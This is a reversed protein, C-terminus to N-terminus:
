EVISECLLVIEKKGIVKTSYLFVGHQDDSTTRRAHMVMNSAIEILYIGDRLDFKGKFRYVKDKLTELCTLVEQLSVNKSIRINVTSFEITRSQFDIIEKTHCSLQELQKMDVVGFSTTLIRALGNLSVITEKIEEVIKESVLDSKNIIVIDAMSVQKDLLVLVKRLKLYTCSDVVSVLYANQVGCQQIMSAIPLPDAFGSCEVLLEEVGQEIFENVKDIFDHMKCVCFISGGVVSKVTAQLELVEEGDIDLTGFENIIVGIKRNKLQLLMNKLLTTKGSGLFGAVVWIKM